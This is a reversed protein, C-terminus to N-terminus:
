EQDTASGELFRFYDFVPAFLGLTNNTQTSFGVMLAGGSALDDGATTREETRLITYDAAASTKYSSTATTGSLTIKFYFDDFDGLPQIVRGDDNMDIMKGSAVLSAGGNYALAVDQGDTQAVDEDITFVYLTIVETDNSPFGDTVHIEISFDGSTTKYFFPTGGVDQTANVTNHDLHLAGDSVTVSDFLTGPLPPESIEVGKMEFFVFCGLENESDFEASSSCQTTFCTEHAAALANIAEDTLGTGLTLCYRTNQSLNGDPTFTVQTKDDSLSVTGSVANSDEDALAVASTTVTTESLAESFTCTVATAKTVGTADSDPSCSSVTPPTIDEAPEGGGGNSGGGCGGAVGGYLALGIWFGIVLLFWAGRWGQHIKM